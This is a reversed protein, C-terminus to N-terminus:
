SGTVCTVIMMVTVFVLFKACLNRSTKHSSLSEFDTIFNRYKINPYCQIRTRERCTERPRERTTTNCRQQLRTDCREQIEKRYNVEKM